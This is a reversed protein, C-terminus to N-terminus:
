TKYLSKFGWGSLETFLTDNLSHCIQLLCVIDETNLMNIPVHRDNIKAYIMIIIGILRHFRFVVSVM